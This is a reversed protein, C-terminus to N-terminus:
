SLARDRIGTMREAAETGRSPDFGSDTSARFKRRLHAETDKDLESFSKKYYTWGRSMAKRLDFSKGKDNQERRLAAVATLASKASGLVEVPEGSKHLVVFTTSNEVGMPGEVTVYVSMDDVTGRKAPAQLKDDM